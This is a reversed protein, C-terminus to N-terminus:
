RRRDARSCARICVDQDAAGLSGGRPTYRCGGAPEHTEHLSDDSALHAQRLTM